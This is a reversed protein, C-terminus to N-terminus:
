NLLFLFLALHKLNPKVKPLFGTAGAKPVLAEAWNAGKDSAKQVKRIEQFQLISSENSLKSARSEVM